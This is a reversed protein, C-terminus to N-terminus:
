LTNSILWGNACIKLFDFKSRTLNSTRVSTVIFLVIGQSTVGHLGNCLKVDWFIRATNKICRETQFDETYPKYLNLLRLVLSIPDQRYENSM